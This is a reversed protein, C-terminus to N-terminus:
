KQGVIVGSVICALPPVKRIFGMRIARQWESNYEAAGYGKFVHPGPQAPVQAEVDKYGTNKGNNMTGQETSKEAWAEALSM